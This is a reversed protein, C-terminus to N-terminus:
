DVVPFYDAFSPATAFLQRYQAESLPPPGSLPWEGTARMLFNVFPNVKFRPPPAPTEATSAAKTAARPADDDQPKRRQWLYDILRM